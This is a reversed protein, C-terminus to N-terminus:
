NKPWEQIIQFGLNEHRTDIFRFLKNQSPLSPVVAGLERCQRLMDGSREELSNSWGHDGDLDSGVHNVVGNPLVIGLVSRSDKRISYQRGGKPLRGVGACKEARSVFILLVPIVAHL